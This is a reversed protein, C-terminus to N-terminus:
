FITKWADGINIQGGVIEKWEDGINIAKSHPTLEIVAYVATLSTGLVDITTGPDILTTQGSLRLSGVPPSEFGTVDIKHSTESDLQVAIFYDTGDPLTWDVTAVKWGLSSSASNTREVELLVAADGSSEAYIGVEYNETTGTRQAYWGVEVIHSYGAPMTDGQGRIYGAMDSASAGEPDITPAVTVFGCNTGLVLAM